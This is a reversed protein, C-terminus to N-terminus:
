TTITLRGPGQRSRAKVTIHVDRGLRTLARMLRDPSFGNLKGGMLLSIQSPAEGVIVGAATQTLEKDRIIRVLAKALPEKPIIQGGGSTRGRSGSSRRRTTRGNRSQRSTSRKTAAM